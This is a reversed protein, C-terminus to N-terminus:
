MPTAHGFDTGFHLGTCGEAFHRSSGLDCIFLDLVFDEPPSDDFGQSLGDYLTTKKHALRVEWGSRAVRRLDALINDPKIDGNIVGRCM